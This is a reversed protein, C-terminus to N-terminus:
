TQLCIPNLSNTVKSFFNTVKRSMTEINKLEEEDIVWGRYGSDFSKVLKTYPLIGLFVHFSADDPHLLIKKNGKILHVWYNWLNM